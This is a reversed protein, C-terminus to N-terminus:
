FVFILVYVNILATQKIGDAGENDLYHCFLLFPHKKTVPIYLMTCLHLRKKVLGSAAEFRRVNLLPVRLVTEQFSYFNWETNM